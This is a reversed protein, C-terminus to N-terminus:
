STFVIPRTPEGIAYIKAGRTVILASGAASFDGKIVTGPAITLTAGNILYVKGSLLYITDYNWMVNGSINGTITKVPAAASAFFTTAFLAVILLILKKM